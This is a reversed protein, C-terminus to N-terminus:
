IKEVRAYPCLFTDQPQREEYQVQVVHCEEYTEFSGLFFSHGQHIMILNFWVYVM